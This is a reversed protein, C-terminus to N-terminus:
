GKSRSPPLLPDSSSRPQIQKDGEAYHVVVLEAPTFGLNLMVEAESELREYSERMRRAVERNIADMNM